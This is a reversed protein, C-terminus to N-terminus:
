YTQNTSKLRNYTELFEKQENKPISAIEMEIAGSLIILSQKKQMINTTRTNHYMADNSTEQHKRMQQGWEM